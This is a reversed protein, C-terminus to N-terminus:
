NGQAPLEANIFIKNSAAVFAIYHKSHLEESNTVFKFFQPV